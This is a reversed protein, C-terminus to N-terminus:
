PPSLRGLAPPWRSREANWSRSRIGLCRRGEGQHGYPGEEWVLGDPIELRPRAQPVTGGFRATLRAARDVAWAPDDDEIAARLYDAPSPPGKPATQIIQEKLAQALDVVRKIGHSQGRSWDHLMAMGDRVRQRSHEIWTVDVDFHEM